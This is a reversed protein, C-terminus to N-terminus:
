SVIRRGGDPTCHDMSNFMSNVLSSGLKYMSQICTHKMGRTCTCKPSLKKLIVHLADQPKSNECVSYNRLKTKLTPMTSSNFHMDIFIEGKNMSQRPHLRASLCFLQLSFPPCLILFFYYLNLLWNTLNWYQEKECFICRVYIGKLDMCYGQQITTPWCLWTHIYCAPSCSQAIDLVLWYQFILHM